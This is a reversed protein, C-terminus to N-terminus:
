TSFNRSCRKIDQERLLRATIVVFVILYTSQGDYQLPSQFPRWLPCEASGLSTEKIEGM